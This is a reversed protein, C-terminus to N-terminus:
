GNKLSGKTAAVIDSVKRNSIGSREGEILALRIVEHERQDHRILDRMYDSANAYEGSKVQEDIWKRMSDTLSINLTAM